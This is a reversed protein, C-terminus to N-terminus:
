NYSAMTQFVAQEWEIRNKFGYPTPAGNKSFSNEQSLFSASLKWDEENKFVSINDHPFDVVLSAM